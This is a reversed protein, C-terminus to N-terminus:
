DLGDEASNPLTGVWGRSVSENVAEGVVYFSGTVVMPKEGAIERCRAVADGIRECIEVQFGEKAIYAGLDKAELKRESDPTTVVVPGAIGKLLEVMERWPKDSLIGLVFPVPKEWLSIHKVLAEMSQPNHAVDFLIPPTGTRYDLRGPWKLSSCTQNYAKQVEPGPRGFLEMAATCALSSNKFQHAGPLPSREVPVPFVRRLNESVVANMIVEEVGPTQASAVLVTGPAAIAVKERAILERTEGLIRSHEVRVGTFITGAGNYTKTADLRGGLGAEAAVIEVGCSAFYWAAMATTIEFFTASHKRFLPMYDTVFEAVTDEPIWQDNVVIRERYHLLHPSTGRGWAMGLNGAIGSLIAATSGKGNTGVIHITKFDREPHNLADMMLLMRELGYKMGLRCQDFLWKEAEAYNV